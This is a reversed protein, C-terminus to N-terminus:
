NCGYSLCETTHQPIVYAKIAEITNQIKEINYEKGYWNNNYADSKAVADITNWLSSYQSIGNYLAVRGNDGGYSYYERLYKSVILSDNMEETLADLQFAGLLNHFIGLIQTTKSELLQMPSVVGTISSIAVDSIIGALGDTLIKNDPFVAELDKSIAYTTIDSTAKGIPDLQYDVMTLALKVSEHGLDTGEIKAKILNKQSSLVKEYKVLSYIDWKQKCTPNSIKLFFDSDYSPATCNETADWEDYETKDTCIASIYGNLKSNDAKVRILSYAKNPIKKVVCPLYGDCIDASNWDKDKWSEKVHVSDIKRWMSDNNNDYIPKKHYYTEDYYRSDSLRLYSCDDNPQWQFFTVSKKNNFSIAVDQYIGDSQTSYPNDKRIISSNGAWYYDDIQLSDKSIDKNNPQNSLPQETCEAAIIYEKDIYVRSTVAITNWLNNSEITLPLTTKYAQEIETNSWGKIRVEAYFKQDKDIHDSESHYKAIGINLYPCSNTKKWQFVVTPKQNNNPHMKAYDQDCGFCNKDPNIISGVGDVVTAGYLSNIGLFLIPLVIKFKKM